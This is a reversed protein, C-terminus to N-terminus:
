RVGLVQLGGHEEFGDKLSKEGASRQCDHSAHRDLVGQRRRHEVIQEVLGGLATVGLLQEEARGDIQHAQHHAALM